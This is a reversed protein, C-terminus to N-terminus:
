AVWRSRISLWRHAERTCDFPRVHLGHAEALDCFIRAGELAPTGVLLAVRGDRRPIQAVATALDMAEEQSPKWSAGRLDVLVHFGDGLRPDGALRYGAELTEHLDVPGEARVCVRQAIRSVEFAYPV